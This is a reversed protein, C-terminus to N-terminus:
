CKVLKKDLSFMSEAISIDGLQEREKDSPSYKKHDMFLKFYDNPIEYMDLVTSNVMDIFDKAGKGQTMFKYDGTNIEGIIYKEDRFWRVEIGKPLKNWYAFTGEECIDDRTFLNKIFKFM